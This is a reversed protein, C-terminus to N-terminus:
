GEPEKCIAVLTGATLVPLLNTPLTHKAIGIAINM